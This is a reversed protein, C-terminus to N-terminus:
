TAHNGQCENRPHRQQSQRDDFSVRPAIAHLHREEEVHVHMSSEQERKWQEDHRFEHDMLPHAGHHRRKHLAAQNGVVRVPPKVCGDGRRHAQAIGHQRLHDQDREDVSDANQEDPPAV